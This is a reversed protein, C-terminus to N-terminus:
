CGRHDPWSSGELFSPPVNILSRSGYSSIGWVFENPLTVLSMLLILPCPVLFNNRAVRCGSMYSKTNMIFNTDIKCTKWTAKTQCTNVFFPHLFKQLFYFTATLYCQSTSRPTHAPWQCGGRTTVDAM